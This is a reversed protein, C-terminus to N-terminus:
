KKILKFSKVGGNEHEIEAFYLGPPLDKGFEVVNNQFEMQIVGQTNIVRIHKVLSSGLLSFGSNSPNPYIDIRSAWEEIQEQATITGSTVVVKDLNVNGGDGADYAYEVTNIGANLNIAETATAWSDWNALGPLTTQKVKVGNVYISLTSTTIANAYSLKFNYSGANSAKVRFLTKAGISTYGDVFGTGTYGVHDNNVKATGSFEALEAEITSPIAFVSLLKGFVANDLNIYGGDGVEYRYELVNTGKPLVLTDNVTAWVDWSTSSPFKLQKVKVNNLYVSLSSITNANAYKIKVSYDGASTANLRFLTKAGV